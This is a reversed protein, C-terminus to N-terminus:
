AIRSRSVQLQSSSSGQSLLVSVSALRSARAASTAMAGVAQVPALSHVEISFGGTERCPAKKQSTGVQSGERKHLQLRACPAHRVLCPQM